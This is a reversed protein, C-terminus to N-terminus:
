KRKSEIGSDGKKATFSPNSATSKKCLKCGNGFGEAQFQTEQDIAYAHALNTGVLDARASTPVLPVAARAFWDLICSPQITPYTNLLGRRV